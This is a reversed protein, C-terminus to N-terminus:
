IATPDVEIRLGRGGPRPVAALLDCLEEHGPAQVLYGGDPLESFGVGMETGVPRLADVYGEALPGSATALASFPPL